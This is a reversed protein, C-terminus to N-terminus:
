RSEFDIEILYLQTGESSIQGEIWTQGSNSLPSTYNAVLFSHPGTRVISPFSTDGASPLDLMWVVREQEQDIKYLATRKPRLSYSAIYVAKKQSETLYNLGMDFPGGVDRRAVMYLDDGHRFMRPSDYREPDSQSPFQWKGLEGAPAFALHSGWGTSDGDENRTVAWLNGAADFDFAAESVGGTYVVPGAPDVPTWNIGDDSVHFLLEIESGNTGYHNGLYSTMWAKGDRVLLEWPVEGQERVRQPQSWEGAPNRVMRWIQQPEFAIPNTGLELYHLILNGNISLFTPERLDSGTQITREFDWTEGLDGSSLVYLKTEASAFHTPASRWALYLRGGHMGIGVNNNSPATVVQPPLNSEPVIWKPNSLVPVYDLTPDVEWSNGDGQELSGHVGAPEEGSDGCSFLLFLPLLLLIRNM